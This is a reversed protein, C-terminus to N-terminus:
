SVPRGNVDLYGFRAMVDGHDAIIQKILQSPMQEKWSGVIGKRFFSSAHVNKEEFGVEREQNALQEFTSFEVAKEIRHSEMPLGCFRIVREFTSFTDRKLDEYRVILIRLGSADVWSTVHGGWTLVRQRLQNHLRRKNFSLVYKPNAMRRVAEEVSVNGHHAYSVAIDLPNRILYLVGATAEPPILPQNDPTQIYADHVKLFLPPEADRAARKYVLPRWQEIEDQTLDSAEIGIFEDFFERGSAIPGGRLNNIDAPTDADRLYNTLLVRMWTNGSKPYSALWYITSM